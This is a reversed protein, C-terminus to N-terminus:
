IQGEYSFTTIYFYYKGNALKHSIIPSFGDIEIIPHIRKNLNKNM